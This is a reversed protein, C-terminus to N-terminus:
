LRGGVRLDSPTVKDIGGLEEIAIQIVAAADEEDIEQDLLHALLHHFRCLVQLDKDAEHGLNRYHLHHVELGDISCCRGVDTGYECRYEAQDLRRQRRARWDSSLLYDRYDHYNM